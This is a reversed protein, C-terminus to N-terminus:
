CIGDGGKSPINGLAEIKRLNKSASISHLDFSKHQTACNWLMPIRPVM